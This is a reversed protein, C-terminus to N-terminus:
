KKIFKASSQQNADNRFNAIYVGTNLGSIDLSHNGSTLNQKRVSKGNMDFIEIQVNKQAAIELTNNAVNSKLAVGSNNYAFGEASLQPAYRYTLTHTQGVPDGQSDEMYFKFVYDVTSGNGPNSNLFHDFESNTQGPAITVATSPYAQGPTVSSLCVNGFCLEMGLGTGNTIEVCEIRVNIDATSQNHVFFELLAASYELSSFTVVQGDTFETGAHNTVKFTQAQAFSAFLLGFILLTKKM